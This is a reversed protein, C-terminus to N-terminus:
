GVLFIRSIMMSSSRQQPLPVQMMLASPKQQHPWLQSPVRIHKALASSSLVVPSAGESVEPEAVSSQNVKAAVLLREAYQAVDDKKMSIPWRYSSM